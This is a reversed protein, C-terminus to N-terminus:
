GSCGFHRHTLLLRSFLQRTGQQRVWTGPVTRVWPLWCSHGTANLIGDLHDFREDWGTTALQERAASRDESGDGNGPGSHCSWRQLHQHGGPLSSTTTAKAPPACWRYPLDPTPRGATVCKAIAHDSQRPWGRPFDMVYLERRLHPSRIRHCVGRAACGIIKVHSRFHKFNSEAGITRCM